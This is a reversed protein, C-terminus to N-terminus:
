SGVAQNLDATFSTKAGRSKWTRLKGACVRSGHLEVVKGRIKRDDFNPGFVLFRFTRPFSRLGDYSNWKRHTERKRVHYGVIVRYTM